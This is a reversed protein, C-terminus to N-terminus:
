WRTVEEGRSRAIAAEVDERAAVANRLNDGAAKAEAEAQEILDDLRNIAAYAMAWEADAVALETESADGDAHMARVQNRKFRADGLLCNVERRAEILSNTDLLLGRRLERQPSASVTVGGQLHDGPPYRREAADRVAEEPTQAWQVEIEAGTENFEVAFGGDELPRVSVKERM